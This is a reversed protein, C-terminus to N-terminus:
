SRYLRKYEAYMEKQVTGMQEQGLLDWLGAWAASEEMTVLDLPMSPAPCGGLEEVIMTYAVPALAKGLAALQDPSV